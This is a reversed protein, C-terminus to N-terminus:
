SGGYYTRRGMIRFLVVSFLITVVFMIWAMASAYGMKYYQFGTQYLYLPYFTSAGAPGGTTMIWPLTFYNFANIIGTIVVFLTTASVMPITVHWMEQFRNAGDIRAAEYLHQPVDQLAALYIVMTNGSAWLTIVILSPKVLLESTLWPVSEVGVSNLSSNLLGYQSNYIWGWVLATAVVPTISPLFFITRLVSRVRLNMNLLLALAFAVITGLPVAIVVYYIQNGVAQLFRDDQALNAYNSFGVFRPPTLIDYQTFSYYFSAAIPYLNFALLGIIWPSIFLLGLWLQRHRSLRLRGAQMPVSM